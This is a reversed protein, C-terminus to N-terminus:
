LLSDPNTSSFGTGIGQSKYILAKRKPYVLSFLYDKLNLSLWALASEPIASSTIGTGHNDSVFPNQTKVKSIYSYEFM